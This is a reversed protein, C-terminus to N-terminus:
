RLLVTTCRTVQRSVDSLEGDQLNMTQNRRRLWAGAGWILEFLVRAQTNSLEVNGREQLLRMVEQELARTFEPTPESPGGYLYRLGWAVGASVLNQGM